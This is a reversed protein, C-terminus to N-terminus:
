GCVCACVSSIEKNGFPWHSPKPSPPVQQRAQPGLNLEWASCCVYVHMCPLYVSYFKFLLYSYYALGVHQTECKFCSKNKDGYSNQSTPTLMEVILPSLLLGSLSFNTSM